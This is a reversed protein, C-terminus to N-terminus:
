VGLFHDEHEPRMIGACLPRPGCSLAVASTGTLLLQKQQADVTPLTVRIHTPATSCGTVHLDDRCRWRWRWRNVVLADKETADPDIYGPDIKHLKVKTGPEVIFRKSYNM